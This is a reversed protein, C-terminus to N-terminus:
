CSPGKEGERASCDGQMALMVAREVEERPAAGVQDGPGGFILSLVSIAYDKGPGGDKGDCGGVHTGGVCPGAGRGGGRSGHVDAGICGVSGRGGWVRSTWWWGWQELSSQWTDIERLGDMAVEPLVLSRGDGGIDGCNGHPNPVLSHELMHLAAFRETCHIPARGRPVFDELNPFPLVPLERAPPPPPNPPLKPPPDSDLLSPRHFTPPFRWQSFSQSTSSSSSESEPQQNPPFTSPPHPRVASPLPPPSRSSPHKSHPFLFHLLTLLNGGSLEPATNSIQVGSIINNTHPLAPTGSKPRIKCPLTSKMNRTSNGAFVEIVTVAWRRADGDM